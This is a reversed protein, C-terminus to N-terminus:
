RIRFPVTHVSPDGAVRITLSYTGTRLGRTSLNLVYGGGLSADYRFNTGPNANGSDVVPRSTDSSALSVSTATVVIAAASVNLGGADCLQFRIPVTSGARHAKTPDYLLCTNYTVQYAVTTANLNGAADSANVTFSANGVVATTVAEGSTVPGACSAVGSGGDGCAYVAGVPQNLTYTASTPATIDITPSRKDVKNGAIPGAVACNGVRDCTPRTDTLANATETNPPTATTLVFQADAPDALGSGSDEASCALAVDSAHWAGDPAACTIVPPVTDDCAVGPTCAAITTSAEATPAKDEVNGVLDRAVSYFAYSRGPQGTFMAASATTQEIWPTFAGGDEAVFVTYDKVGAGVDTAVWRVQFDASVQQTALPEVTGTPADRDITNLWVPTEIPANLDFVISAHNGIASGTALDERPQITFLVSGDGEPPNANPRLFGALPDTVPEGTAPDISSFRWTVLGDAAVDVAIRVIVDQDPRLDLDTSFTQLGPAPVVQRGAVTIPGPAFTSLDVGSLDLRDTIVVEQAPATATELNEFFVAYRLPEHGSIYRAAGAGRSGTKDNPDFSGVPRVPLRAADPPPFVCECEEILVSQAILMNIIDLVFSAMLRPDFGTVCNKLVEWILEAFSFRDNLYIGNATEESLRDVIPLVGTVFLVAASICELVEILPPNVFFAPSAWARLEFAPTTAPVRITITIPSSAGPPVRSVVLPVVLENGIEVTTPVLAADAPDSLLSTIGFGLEVVSGRPIGAIFLPVGKADVNGSNGYFLSFTQEREARIVERGVLDVWVHANVGPVITFGNPLTTTTGDPNTVIVNWAGHARDRLDFITRLATGSLTVIV